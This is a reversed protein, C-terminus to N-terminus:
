WPTEGATLEITVPGAVDEGSFAYLHWTGPAKPLPNDGLLNLSFSGVGGELPVDLRSTFPGAATGKTAFFFVTAHDGVGRVTGQLRVEGGPETTAQPPGGLELAAGGDVPEAGVEYALLGPSPPTKKGGGTASITVGNSVAGGHVGYVRVRGTGWALEPLVALLNFRFAESVVGNRTPAAASASSKGGGAVQKGGGAAMKGGGSAKAPMKATVTNGAGFGTDDLQVGIWWGGPSFAAKAGVDLARFGVVPVVGGGVDVRFPADIRVGRAGERILKRRADTSVRVADDRLLDADSLGFLHEAPEPSPTSPVSPEPPDPISSPGPAPQPSGGCATVLMGVLLVRTM